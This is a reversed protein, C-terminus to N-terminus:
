LRWAGITIWIALLGGIIMSPLSVWMPVIIGAIAVDIGAFFRVGHGASGAALMLSSAYYAAKKM